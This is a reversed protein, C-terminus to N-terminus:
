HPVVDSNDVISSKKYVEYTQAAIRDWSLTQAYRLGNRGMSVLQQRNEIAKLMCKFLGEKDTKSYFYGVNSPLDNLAGIRPCIIPKGFSLGLIVSGSSTIERFPYVIVDACNFYYQVEDDEIHHSYIQIIDESTNRYSGLVTGLTSSDCKGAIVLNVNDRGKSLQEFVELLDEIGKYASIRGFFLFVFDDNKSSFHAKADSRNVSNDYSGIYNGHPIVYSNRTDLGLKQMGDITSESHVIKADCLQSLVIRVWADSLFQQEHPLVNHVTWLLRYRLLKILLLCLLFNLTSLPKSVVNHIRFQFQYTWHLHLINYGLLRNFILQYPFLAIGFNRCHTPPVLYKIAVKTALQRYLLEQYPNGDKPYVLIKM